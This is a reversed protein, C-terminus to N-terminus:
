AATQPLQCLNIVLQQLKLLPTSSSSDAIFCHAILYIIHGKLDLKRLIVSTSSINSQTNVDWWSPSHHARLSCLENVKLVLNQVILGHCLASERERETNRHCLIARWLIGQFVTTMMVCLSSVRAQGQLPCIIGGPPSLAIWLWPRGTMALSFLAQWKTQIQIGTHCKQHGIQLILPSLVRKYTRTPILYSLRKLRKSCSMTGSLLDIPILIHALRWLQWMRTYQWQQSFLFSPTKEEWSFMPDEMAMTVLFWWFGQNPCPKHKELDTCM